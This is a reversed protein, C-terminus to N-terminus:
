ASGGSLRGTFAMIVFGVAPAIGLYGLVLGTLAMGHGARENNATENLGKHGCIIAVLAFAGFTCCAVWALIGFILSLTAMTSTAPASSHMVVISQQAPPPSIPLPAPPDPHDSSDPPPYVM